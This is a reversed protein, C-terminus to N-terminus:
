LRIIKLILELCGCKGHERRVRRPPVRLRMPSCPVLPSRNPTGTPFIKEDFDSSMIESKHYVENGSPVPVKVAQRANNKSRLSTAIKDIGIGEKIKVNADYLINRGDRAKAILLEVPYLTGDNTLVYSRRTDWGNKDLWQHTNDNKHSALLSIEVTEKSNLIVLKKLENRAQELEGLVRRFNTSGYKRVRENEKAFEIIESEGNSNYVTIKQNILNNRIFDIYAKGSRKVKNFIKYDLEIVHDYENGNVDVIDTRDSYLIGSNESNIRDSLQETQSTRYNRAESADILADAFLEKLREAEDVMESVIRGEYSDPKMGAYAKKIRAVLKTIFSKFKDALWKDRARLKQSRIHKKKLKTISM